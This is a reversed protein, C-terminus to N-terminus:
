EMMAAMQCYNIPCWGKMCDVKNSQFLTRNFHLVLWFWNQELHFFWIGRWFNTGQLLPHHDNHNIFYCLLSVVGDISCGDPLIKNCMMREHSEVQQTPCQLKNNSHPGRLVHFDTLTMTPWSPFLLFTQLFRHMVFSFSPWQSKHFWLAFAGYWQSQLRRAINIPQWGKM